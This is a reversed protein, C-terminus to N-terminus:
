AAAKRKTPLIIALVAGVTAIGGCFWVVGEFGNQEYILGGIVPSLLPWSWRQAGELHGPIM